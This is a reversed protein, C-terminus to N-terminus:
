VVSKRDPLRPPASRLPAFFGTKPVDCPPLLDCSLGPRSREFILKM